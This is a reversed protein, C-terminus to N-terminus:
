MHVGVGAVQSLLVTLWRQEQFVYTPLDGAVLPQMNLDVVPHEGPIAEVTGAVLLFHAKAVLTCILRQGPRLQYPPNSV